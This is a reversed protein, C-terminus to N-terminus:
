LASRIDDGSRRNLHPKRRRAIRSHGARLIAIGLASAKQAHEVFGGGGGDRQRLARGAHREGDPQRDAHAAIRLRALVAASKRQLHVVGGDANRHMQRHRVIRQGVGPLEDGKGSQHLRRLRHGKLVAHLQPRVSVPFEEVLHELVESLHADAGHIHRDDALGIVTVRLRHHSPNRLGVARVCVIETDHLFVEVQDDLVEALNRDDAELDPRRRVAAATKALRRVDLLVEARHHERYHVGGGAGRFLHFPRVPSGSAAHWEPFRHELSQPLAKGVAAQQIRHRQPHHAVERGALFSEVVQLFGGGVHRPDNVSVSERAVKGAHRHRLGRVYPARPPRKKRGVGALPVPPLVPVDHRHEGAPSGTRHPVYLRERGRAHEM